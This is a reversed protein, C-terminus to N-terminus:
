DLKINKLIESMDAAGMIILTDTSSAEIKNVTKSDIYECGKGIADILSHSSLDIRECERVPDIDCIYVKDALSLAEVFDSFLSETRSYTHPRFVVIVRGETIDRAASLTASIETPHHAYDYYVRAGNYRGIEQFRREIGSFSSLAKIIEQPFLGAMRSAAYAGLANYVNFKGIVSLSLFGEKESDKYIEFAFRGHENKINKATFDAKKRIGFTVVKKKASPILSFLNEDDVNIVSCEALNIAKLFSDKISDLSDFYDTHDLELNTFLSINPTFNLFSDKYECAEYILNCSDGRLYPLGFSSLGAGCMVTPPHGASLFASSIMACSTSKGHSGSVGIKFEFLEMLAGLYEARSVTLIGKKRAYVLESDEDSVALTYVLISHDYVSLDVECFDVMIGRSVLDRALNNEKRDSGSVRYGLDYTLRVLSYMGVGGIGLFRVHTNRIKLIERIKEKRPFVISKSLSSGGEISTLRKYM